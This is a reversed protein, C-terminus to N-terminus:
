PLRKIAEILERDLDSPCFMNRYLCDRHYGRAKLTGGIGVALLVFGCDGIDITKECLSCQEGVPTEIKDVVSCIPAGWTKGFWKM